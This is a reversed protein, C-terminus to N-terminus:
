FGLGQIYAKQISDKAIKPCEKSVIDVSAINDATDITLLKTDKSAITENAYNKNLMITGNEYNMTITFGTLDVTGTNTIQLTLTGLGASQNTYAFSAREIWIGANTCKQLETRVFQTAWSALVGSVVMTFAILMIVAILPSIGKLAM